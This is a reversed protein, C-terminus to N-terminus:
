ETPIIWSDGDVSGQLEETVVFDVIGRGTLAMQPFTDIGDELPFGYRTNNINYREAMSMAFSAELEERGIMFGILGGWTAAPNDSDWGALVAIKVTEKYDGEGFYLSVMSAAFNIGAAFCGNCSLERDRLDYGDLGEVVYRKYVEDRAQEWPVGAEYRSKVFDHMKAIYSDDATRARAQKALGQMQEKVSLEPDAVAALSHMIVYFEAALAAEDHATVRIPLHSMKLAFDPRGPAFLGFIETTLQADIMDHHENNVPDSTAPPLMGEKDMLDYARQNSVWLFNEPQGRVIHPSNEDSYIHALWGDRIQEASLVATQHQQLLHQYIYEIDTDDDSDWIESADRIVWDIVPSVRSPQTGGFRPQDPGGWDDRTYFVGAPGEGGVKDVETVLGTWNAVNQGLWFGELKDLYQSRDITFEATEDPAACSSSVFAILILIGITNNSRM